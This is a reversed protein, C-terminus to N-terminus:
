KARVQICSLALESGANISCYSNGRRVRTESNWATWKLAIDNGSEVIQGSALGATLMQNQIASKDEFTLMGNAQIRQQANSLVWYARQLEMNGGTDQLSRKHLNMVGAMAVAMIMAAILVEFLTFGRENSQIIKRM